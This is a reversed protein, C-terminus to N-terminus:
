IKGEVLLRGMEYGKRYAAELLEPRRSLDHITDMDNILLEGWYEVDIISFFAKMTMKAGDFVYPVDMGSIGLYLGRRLAAKEKSVMPKGRMYKAMYFVQFRDMFSKLAGPIGMTMVPTAVILSDLERFKEYMRVMDDKMACAEHERCYFIERCPRFALNAVEIREVDCGADQAGKLASDLLKATNGHPLPSGLLGVIRCGM